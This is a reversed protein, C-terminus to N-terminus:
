FLSRMCIELKIKGSCSFFTNPLCRGGNMDVTVVWSPSRFQRPSNSWDTEIKNTALPPFIEAGAVRDNNVNGMFEVNFKGGSM